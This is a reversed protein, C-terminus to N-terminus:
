VGSIIGPRKKATDPMIPYILGSIIRLCELLNYIASELQKQSSKKKALVWPATVDIYKASPRDGLRDLVKMYDVKCLQRGMPLLEDKELGLEEALQSIPKM